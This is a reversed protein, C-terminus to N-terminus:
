TEHLCAFLCGMDSTLFPAAVPHLKPIDQFESWTRNLQIKGQFNSKELPKQPGFSGLEIPEMRGFFTRDRGYFDPSEVIILIIM